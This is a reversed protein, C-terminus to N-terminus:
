VRASASLTLRLCWVGGYRSGLKQWRSNWAKTKRGWSREKKKKLVTVYEEMKPNRLM